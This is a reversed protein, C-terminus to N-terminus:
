QQVASHKREGLRLVLGHELGDPLEAVGGRLPFYAASGLRDQAHRFAREVALLHGDLLREFLHNKSPHLAAHRETLVCVESHLSFLLQGRKFRARRAEFPVVLFVAPVVVFAGVFLVGGGGGGGEAGRLLGEAGAGARALEENLIAAQKRNLGGGGYEKPWTPTGWGKEGMAVRWAKEAPSEEGAEEVSSLLNNKGRLEPPFNEALFARAEERFSDLDARTDPEAVSAM